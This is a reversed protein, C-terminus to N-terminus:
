SFILRRPIFRRVRRPMINIEDETIGKSLLMAAGYVVIGILIALITAIDNIVLRSGLIFTISNYVVYCAAGMIVTSVITKFIYESFKINLRLKFSIYMGNLIVPVLFGVISGIIAGYINIRPMAILVYNVIYKIAIGLVSYVAVIYVKGMGQLISVQIQFLAMFIVVVAGFLMLKYGDNYKLLAYIPKSLVSLGMAAPLSIILSIKFAFNIKNEAARKSNLRILKSVAPLVTVALASIITIPVATLVTFKSYVGFLSQAATNSFGGVELRSTMNFVDILSSLSPIGICITIPISYKLIRKLIQRNTNVLSTSSKLHLKDAKKSSKYTLVLFMASALAGITTGITAGVCGYEVGYRMLLAGFLLSLVTNIVQELVQSIATPKMNLRGQFYGRYASAVSTFLIAPCLAIVSYKAEPYKMVKTFIGATLIMIAAMVVGIIILIQKSMKFTKEAGEYDKAAISESILKSISSPIGANTIVYIFTYIQYTVSYIGFGRDGHLIRILLPSYILSLLKVVMTGISLIAFGRSTSQEKM